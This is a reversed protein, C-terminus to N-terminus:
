RVSHTFVLVFPSVSKGLFVLDITQQIKFDKAILFSCGRSFFLYLFYLRSFFIARNLGLLGCQFSKVSSM